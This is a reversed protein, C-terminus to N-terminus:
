KMEKEFLFYTQQAPNETQEPQMNPDAHHPNFFEIIKFGCKNVYFHVNQEEFYPTVTRWKVTDPFAREIAKWASLGVGKNHCDTRIFFLDLVNVHTTKNINLVAGGVIKGDAVIHYTEAGDALISSTVDESSPVIEDSGFNEKVTVSFSDQLDKVFAPYEDPRVEKLLVNQNEM